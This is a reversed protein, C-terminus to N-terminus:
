PAETRLIRPSRLVFTRVPESGVQTTWVFEDPFKADIRALLAGPDKDHDILKGQYIAVHEGLYEELLTPHMAIYAQMEREVAPDSESWDITKDEGASRALDRRDIIAEEIKEIEEDSLGAYVEAALALIEDARELPEVVIRVTQGETLGLDQGPVPRFIGDEYVAEVTRIQNTM